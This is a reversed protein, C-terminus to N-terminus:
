QHQLLYFETSYIYDREGAPRNKYVWDNFVNAKFYWGAVTKTGASGTLTVKWARPSAGRTIQISSLQGVNTYKNTACIASLEELSYGNTRTVLDYYKNKHAVASDDVGRLYAYVTGNGYRDSFVYNNHETHGRASAHYVATILKGNYKLVKNATAIAIDYDGNDMFDDDTGGNRPYSVQCAATICISKNPDGNNTYNAAYTRAAVMQAKRVEIPWSEPVEGLGGLYDNFGITKYITSRTSGDPYKCTNGSPTVTVAAKPYKTTNPCFRITIHSNLPYEDVGVGTYYHKLIQEYGWGNKAMGYAGYQSMGVGHGDYLDRGRSRFYYQGPVLPQVQGGGESMRRAEEELIKKQEAELLGIATNLQSVQSRLGTAQSNVQAIQAKVQSLETKLTKEREALDAVEAELAIKHTEALVKASSVLEIQASLEGIKARSQDIVRGRLNASVVYNGFGDSAFIKEVDSLQSMQYLSVASDGLNAKQELIYTELASIDAMLQEIQQQTQTLTEQSARLEEGAQALQDELTGSRASLTKGESRVADLAKQKDALDKEKQEIERIIEEITKASAVPFNPVFGSFNLVAISVVAVAVVYFRGAKILRLLNMVTDIYWVKSITLLFMARNVTRANVSTTYNYWM